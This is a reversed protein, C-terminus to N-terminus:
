ELRQAIWENSVFPLLLSRLNKTLPGRVDDSVLEGPRGDLARFGSWRLRINWHGQDTLVHIREILRLAWVTGFLNRFDRWARDLPEADQARRGSLWAAAALAAAFLGLPLHPALPSVYVGGPLFRALLVVEAAAFLLSALWFRTPLYNLTGVGILIVLFWSRARM